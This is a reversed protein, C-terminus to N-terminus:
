PQEQGFQHHQSRQQHEETQHGSRDYQLGVSDLAHEDTGGSDAPECWLRDVLDQDGAPLQRYDYQGWQEPEADRRPHRHQTAIHSRSPHERQREGGSQPNGPLDSAGHAHVEIEDIEFDAVGEPVSRRQRQPGDTHQRRDDDRGHV